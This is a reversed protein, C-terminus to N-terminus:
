LKQYKPDHRVLEHAINLTLSDFVQRPLPIVGSKINNIQLVLPRKWEDDITPWTQHLVSKEWVYKQSLKSHSISALATWLECMLSPCIPALMICLDALCRQYQQSEMAVHGPVKGLTSTFDQMHSIATNLLFKKSFQITARSVVLNRAEFLNEEWEQLEADSCKTHSASTFSNIYSGVLKWIRVQWRLIGVFADNSWKRDSQPSVASLICLRTADVGFEKLVDEPDVGNHKSKSMKEWEEVLPNKTDKEVPKTGTFDVQDAKLYKGTEKVRFSKGLVMGQTLLSDFPERRGLLGVDHLFHCFFRAFYLHMTAHEKGGIYLDVPMYKDVTDRKYPASTNHPDLYRLFYWSSDVFTDMTDIERKAEGGCRPCTVNVWDHQQSLPSPGHGTLGSIPPLEVPLQDFPVPVAQCTNCHIIPIPTGWYRQRSILWDRGRKSVHEGGVGKELAIHLVAEFAESRTLGNLDHSNVICEDGDARKGLIELYKLNLSDALCRSAESISPIGLMVNNHYDFQTSKSVVIPIREGTFPHVAAVSLIKKYLHQQNLRHDPSVAIYAVGYVAEPTPTYIHLPEFVMNEQGELAFKLQTGDCKGIWDQQLSIIDKWLEANVEHLGDYLSQAKATTKIYWQKLYQKEVIAGSRWSRGHEDIQEDALVTMDVPDWNVEGEKQYVLGAEFMKLFIHQTWRYYAPDCTAFERNWDFSCGLQELQEKMNKINKYTWEDPREGREIAANEAPLGFADWGMPHIVYRGQLRQFRAMVDSITYVRVHGMHLKGSPYPFMSLVYYKEKSCDEQLSQLRDEEKILPIWHKEIEKRKEITLDKEWVKTKSTSSQACGDKGANRSVDDTEASRASSLLTGRRRGKIRHGAAVPGVRVHM